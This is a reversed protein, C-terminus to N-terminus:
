PMALPAGVRVTRHYKFTLAPGILFGIIGATVHGWNTFSPDTLVLAVLFLMWVGIAVLRLRGVFLYALVAICCYTGYSWGVDIARTVSHGIWGAQVEARLVVYVILTAGVHGAVFAILWRITGIRQELPSLGLLAWPLFSWAAEPRAVFFASTVLVYLPDHGLRNINTSATHLLVRDIINPTGSLVLMVAFIISTLVVTGIARRPDGVWARVLPVVRPL